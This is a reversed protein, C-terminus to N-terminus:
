LPINALLGDYSIDSPNQLTVLMNQATSQATDDPQENEDTSTQAIQKNVADQRRWNDVNARNGWASRFGSFGAQRMADNNFYWDSKSSTAFLDSAAATNNPNQMVADNVFVTSDQEKLGQEKRLQRVTKKILAT